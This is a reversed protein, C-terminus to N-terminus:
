PSKQSLGSQYDSLVMSTSALGVAGDIRLPIRNEGQDFWVQYNQPDSDMRYSEFFKGGAKIRQQATLKFALEKTPLSMKLVDGLVFTGDRRYRYIFGYLNDVIGAKNLVQESIKGDVLKRVKIQRKALDYEESIKEKKGFINLDREVRLPHFTVPDIYIREEDYFNVAKAIFTIRFLDRDQLRAQGDFSLTAEGVKVGFKRIAYTIKEGAIFPFKEAMVVGQALGSPGVITFFLALSTLAAQLLLRRYFDM